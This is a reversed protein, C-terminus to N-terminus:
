LLFSSSFSGFSSGYRVTAAWVGEDVRKDFGSPTMNLINEFLSNGFNVQNKGIELILSDQIPMSLLLSDVLVRSTSLQSNPNKDYRQVTMNVSFDVQNFFSRSFLTKISFLNLSEQVGFLNDKNILSIQNVKNLSQEVSVTFDAASLSTGLIFVASLVSSCANLFRM